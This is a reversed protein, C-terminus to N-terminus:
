AILSGFDERCPKYIGPVASQGCVTGELTHVIERARLDKKKKKKEQIAHIQVEDKDGKSFM